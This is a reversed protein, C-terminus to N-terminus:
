PFTHVVESKQVLALKVIRYDFTYRKTSLVWNIAQMAQDVRLFCDFGVECWGRESNILDDGGLISCNLREWRGNAHIYEIVYVTFEGDRSLM